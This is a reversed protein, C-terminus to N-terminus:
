SKKDQKYGSGAAPGIFANPSLKFRKALKTIQSLSLPRKGSLFESVRSSTGFEPILDTQSLDNEKMLFMLLEQPQVMIEEEWRAEFDEVLTSLVEFYDKEHTSLAEFNDLLEDCIEAAMENERESRIPKLPFRIILELYKKDPKIALKM